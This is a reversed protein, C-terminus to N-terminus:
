EEQRESPIPEPAKPLTGTALRRGVSGRTKCIQWTDAPGAVDKGAKQLVTYGGIQGSTQSNFTLWTLGSWTGCWRQRNGGATPDEVSFTMGVIRGATSCEAKTKIFDFGNSECNGSKVVHYEAPMDTKIYLDLNHHAGDCNEFKASSQLQCDKAKYSGSGGHAVGYEFAHCDDRADCLRACEMVSKDTYKVLNAGNVCGQYVHEYGPTDLSPEPTTAPTPATSPETKIYLDLNHHAGDCHELKASSQLQCDKAM